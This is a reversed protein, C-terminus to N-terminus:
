DNMRVKVMIGLFNEKPMYETSSFMVFPKAFLQAVMLMWSHLVSVSKSEHVKVAVQVEIFEEIGGRFISFKYGMFITVEKNELIKQSISTNQFYQKFCSSKFCEWGDVCIM